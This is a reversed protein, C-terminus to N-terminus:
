REDARREQISTFVRSSRRGRHSTQRVPVAYLVGWAAILMGAGAWPVTLGRGWYHDFMGHGVKCVMVGIGVAILSFHANGVPVRRSMSYACAGFTVWVGVLAAFGVVGSEALSLLVVNTADYGDRLQLGHGTLPAEQFLEWAYEASQYRLKINWRESDFSTAYERREEPLMMWGIAAVVALVATIRLALMAKKHAILVAGVGLITGVWAGRSVSVVLAATMLSLMATAIWHGRKRERAHLILHTLIVIGISLVGGVANKHLGLVYMEGTSLVAVAVVLVSVAYAWYALDLEDARSVGYAFVGVVGVVYLLMQMANRVVVADVPNAITVVSCACLYAILAWVMPGTVLSRGSRLWRFLFVPAVGVLLLDATAVKISGDGVDHYWPAAAFIVALAVAPARIAIVWMAAVCTGLIALRPLFDWGAFAVVGALLAPLLEVLMRPSVNWVPEPRAVRRYLPRHAAIPRTSTTM